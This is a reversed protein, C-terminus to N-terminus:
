GQKKVGFYDCRKVFIFRFRPPPTPSVSPNKNQGDYFINSLIYALLKTHLNSNANGKENQWFNQIFRM